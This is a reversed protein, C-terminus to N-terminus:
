RSLIGIWKDRILFCTHRGDYLRLITM